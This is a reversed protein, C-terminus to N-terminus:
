GGEMRRGLRAANQRATEMEPALRAARRYLELAEALRGQHEYVAALDNATLANNPDLQMARELHPLAATLDGGDVELLAKGLLHHVVANGSFHTLADRLIGTAEEPRRAVLRLTAYDIWAEAPADALETAQRYAAVADAFRRRQALTRGLLHHLVASPAVASALAASLIEAAEQPRGAAMLARALSDITEIDGPEGRYARRLALLGEEERGLAMLARGRGRQAVSLDPRLELAATFEELASTYRGQAGHLLGRNAHAQAFGPRLEIARDYAAMAPDLQGLDFHATGLNNHGDAFGPAIAVARRAADIARGPEGRVLFTTALNNWANAAGPDLEVAKQGAEIAGDLDGQRARIAGLQDWAPAANPDIRVAELLSNRAEELRGADLQVVGANYHVEWDSVLVAAAQRAYQEAQRKKGAWLLVKSLNKFARAYAEEDVRVLIERSVRDDLGALREAPPEVLGMEAMRDFLARGLLGHTEVTPHVHDLFREGGLLAPRGGALDGGKLQAGKLQARFDVLEVEYREAAEAIARNMEPLARLPCVDEAIAREFSVAAAAEDGAALRASGLLFHGEAHLEDLAVAEAARALALGADGAALADAAAVVLAAHRARDDESLGDAYQSKFPSFGKENVPVTVLIVEAGAARALEIMRGLNLRYHETVQRHFAVDRSYYDLGASSDLLEEVEGALEYRSSSEERVARLARTGLAWLRMRQLAMRGRTLVTPEALLDGYTRKELFENNGSYIVFLDPDYGALEEMLSAVRYSAYSIGGANVVEWSREPAAAELYERLWGTFSTGDEFPRGYTTSGGVTFVRFGGAPKDIAFSQPNFLTLKNGATRYVGAARDAAFLELTSQFGVYPDEDVLIPRVGALALILELVGFFAVLVIASFLLKRGLSLERPRSDAQM